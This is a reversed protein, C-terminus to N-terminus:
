SVCRIRGICTLVGRLLVETLLTEKVTGGGKEKLMGRRALALQLDVSNFYDDFFIRFNCNNPVLRSLRIVM